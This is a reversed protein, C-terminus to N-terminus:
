RFFQSLYDKHAAKMKFYCSKAATFNGTLPNMMLAKLALDDSGTLAAQVAIKEYTKMTQMLCRIHLNENAHLPIPIIGNKGVIGAIEVVDNDAMFPVAGKNLINVVHREKKDNIIASLLSVAAESYRAGGRQSLEPPKIRLSTDAYQKLLKEEIDMCQEGLCQRMQKMEALKISSFYYYSQYSCPIAGIIRVVDYDSGAKSVNKMQGGTLERHIAEPLYEKGNDTISTVWVLHNLGTFEVEAHPLGLGDRLSSIM